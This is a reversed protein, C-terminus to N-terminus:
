PIRYAATRYIFENLFRGNHPNIENIESRDHAAM